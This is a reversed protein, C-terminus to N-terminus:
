QYVELTLIPPPFIEGPSSVLDHAAWLYGLAFNWASLVWSACRVPALVNTMAGCPRLVEGWFLLGDLGPWLLCPRHIAM